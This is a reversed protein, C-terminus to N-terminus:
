MSVVLLTANSLTLTVGNADTATEQLRVELIDGQNCSVLCDLTGAYTVTGSTALNPSALYVRGASVETGNQFVAMEFTYGDPATGSLTCIVENVGGQLIQIYGDTYGDAQMNQQLDNKTFVNQLRVFSNAASFSVAVSGDSLYTQAFNSQATRFPQNVVPSVLTM